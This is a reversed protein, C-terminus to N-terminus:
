SMQSCWKLIHDFSIELKADYIHIPVPQTLDYIQAYIDREFFFVLLQKWIIGDTIENKNMVDSSM